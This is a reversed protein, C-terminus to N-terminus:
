CLGVFFFIRGVSMPCVQRFYQLAARSVSLEVGVQNYRAIDRYVTRVLIVGLMGSLFIVIIVSNVISFWHISTGEASQL